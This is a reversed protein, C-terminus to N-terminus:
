AARRRVMVWGAPALLAALLLPAPGAVLATTSLTLTYSGFAPNDGGGFPSGYVNGSNDAFSPSSSVAVYYTGAPLIGTEIRSNWQGGILGVLDDPIWATLDGKDDNQAVLVGDATFLYIKTDFNTLVPGSTVDAVIAGNGLLTFKFYDLNDTPQDEGPRMITVHPNILSTNVYTNGPASIVVDPNYDLTFFPTVDQAAGFTDNVETNTVLGARAAPCLGAVALVALVLSVQRMPTGWLFWKFM